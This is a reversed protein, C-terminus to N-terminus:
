ETDKLAEVMDIQKNKRVVMMSVFLSVGFTLLISILCSAIGIYVSMEYESALATVLVYLVGAGGPLGIIVGILTLWINQSILLRGIQKDRFGLVKLTALERRREVYSMTGLSYLVVIGLVVAAGILIWVMLNMIEMFTDYSTMLTAKDQKGSILESNEIENMKVDTYISTIHYDMNIEDAYEDTMAISENVLSRFYGAVRVSYTDESGYPSIQIVDGVRATDKLRLCLYVGDNEMDLVKNDKNLIHVKGRDQSYIDLTVTNGNYSIGLSSQWDGKYKECLSVAATRDISETLNIKTAYDASDDLIDLFRNMTDKMGLGGVILLMCGIVGILSMASRAKHRLIDRINWKASFTLGDWIRCNEVASKRMAKPTYPRLADAATGSLMKKTSLFSILTLFVVTLLIVPICFVPITVNWEPLDFYTGMMGDPSMIFTVIGYGLLVGLVAGILGIVLGYSTYHRLIRSDRFGLAKLTGIQVKENSAIRHMTTVMTLIAIALFLVPLVAGMTKGEEAESKAGAYATHLEKDTIQLTKGLSDKVAEELKVKEMQSLINIQPYFTAGFTKELMKPTIYAFGHTKYDPMLQNSDRVCIMNESSKCLGVIQGCIENGQYVFTIDDGISINNIEAFRDSLWIGEIDEAYEEGDTVIMTSVKYNESINVTVTKESNKVEVNASLYRTAAEVGDIQQIKEIDEETFGTESYIRYDAYNTDKFFASTDSEISHWEMNFGLFVGIGITIMIVMSLFQSKYNWATRFLKRLLM